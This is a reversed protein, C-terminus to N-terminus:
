LAAYELMMRIRLTEPLIQKCIGYESEVVRIVSFSRLKILIYCQVTLWSEMITLIACIDLQRSTLFRLLGMRVRPSSGSIIKKFDLRLLTEPTDRKLYKTKM